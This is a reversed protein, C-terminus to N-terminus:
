TRGHSGVAILDAGIEVAVAALREDAHGDVVLESIDAGQGLWRQRLEALERRRAALRREEREIRARSEMRGRPTWGTPDEPFPHVMVLVVEADERRARDIAHAVAVESHHSLDTGVLIKRMM